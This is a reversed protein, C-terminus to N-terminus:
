SNGTHRTARSGTRGLLTKRLFDKSVIQEGHYLWCCEARREMYNRAMPKDRKGLSWQALRVYTDSLDRPDIARALFQQEDINGALFEIAHDVQVGEDSMRAATRQAARLASDRFGLEHLTCLHAVVKWHDVSPDKLQELLLAEAQRRTEKSEALVRARMEVIDFGYSGYSNPKIKNIVRLVEDNDGQVSLVFLAYKRKGNDSYTSGLRYAEEAEKYDGIVKYFVAAGSAGYGSGYNPTTKLQDAVLRGLYTHRELAKEDHRFKAVVIAYAHCYIASWPVGERGTCRWAAHADKIGAEAWKLNGTDLALHGSARSRIELAAPSRYEEFIRTAVDYREKNSGGVWAFFLKDDPTVPTMRKLKAYFKSAAPNDNMNWLTKVLLANAAVSDDGLEIARRLHSAAQAPNEAFKAAIGRIREAWGPNPAGHVREVDRIAQEAKEISGSMAQTIAKFRLEETLRRVVDVALAEQKKAEAANANAIGENRKATHAMWTTGALGLLLSVLVLAMTTIAIRNRRVFKRLRYDLTPPCAEVADDNLYREVDAAFDSATDYRRTRQKELAKMVIWDLEGRVLDRLRSPEANRNQAVTALREGLASLRTSPKPPEEERILRQMEAYGASRLRAADLPPAGTLLEYLLVGLSYIDSRTDVDLESMEAQEPSMYQPTGVMQGYATFMTKDTLERNTAKAVGFDIVKPRPSGDNLTVMINSPKLDRHIIGKQHAHQVARCVTTFLELRDKTPLQNKDCFESISVGRVLEMVFYPRGSETEGADFVQAINPHDMMALSQREAEFRAIVEKTDMGAKIIKLAVKRRIPEKQEAMYVVGFGGEGIKELLKYSGIVTGPSVRVAATDIAPTLQEGCIPRSLYDDDPAQASLLSEVQHRLDDNDGCRADLLQRRAQEDQLEVADAFIENAQPNWSAM